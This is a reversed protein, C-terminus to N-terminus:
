QPSTESITIIPKRSEPKLDEISEVSFHFHISSHPNLILKIYVTSSLILEFKDFQYILCKAKIDKVSCGKLPMWVCKICERNGRVNVREDILTWTNSLQIPDSVVLKLGKIHVTQYRLYGTYYNGDSDGESTIRIGENKFRGKFHDAAGFLVLEREENSTNVAKIELVVEDTGKHKTEM